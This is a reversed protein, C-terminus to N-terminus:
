GEQGESFSSDPVYTTDGTALQIPKVHDNTLDVFVKACIRRMTRVRSGDPGRSSDRVFEHKVLGPVVCMRIKSNELIGAQGSPMALDRRQHLQTCELWVPRDPGFIFPDWVGDARRMLIALEWAASVVDTTLRLLTTWTEEDATSYQPKFYGVFLYILEQCTTDFLNAYEADSVLSEYLFDAAEKRFLFFRLREEYTRERDNALM